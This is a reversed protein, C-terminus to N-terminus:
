FNKLVRNQQMVRFDESAHYSSRTLPSSAVMLFGKAIAMQKYEDFEKPTLYNLSIAAEKLTIDESFAKNAIEERGPKCILSQININKESLKKFVFKGVSGFGIISIKIM